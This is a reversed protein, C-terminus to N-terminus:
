VQLSLIFKVKNLSHYKSSKVGVSSPEERFILYSKPLKYCSNMRLLCPSYIKPIYFNRISGRPIFQSEPISLFHPFLISHLLYLSRKNYTM